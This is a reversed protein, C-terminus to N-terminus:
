KPAPGPASVVPTADALQVLEQETHRLGADTNVALTDVDRKLAVFDALHEAALKNLAASLAQTDETQQNALADAYEAVLAEAQEGAAALTADAAQSLQTNVMQALERQLQERLQPEIAARVRAVDTVATLRGIAFGASLVVVAAAAIAWKLVPEFRIRPRPAAPVKWADLRKMSRQWAGIEDQCSACTQLHEDLRQREQPKAEGFLYPVWEEQKPHNM